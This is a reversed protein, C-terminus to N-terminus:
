KLLAELKGNYMDADFPEMDIIQQLKKVASHENYSWGGFSAIASHGYQDNSGEKFDGYETIYLFGKQFNLINMKREVIEDLNQRIFRAYISNGTIKFKESTKM